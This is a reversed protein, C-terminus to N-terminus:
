SNDGQLNIELKKISFAINSVLIGNDKQLM